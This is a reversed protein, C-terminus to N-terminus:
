LPSFYLNLSPSEPNAIFSLSLVLIAVNKIAVIVFCVTISTFSLLLEQVLSLTLTCLSDPM